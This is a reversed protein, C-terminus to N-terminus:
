DGSRHRQSGSLTRPPRMRCGPQRRWDRYRPRRPLCQIPNAMDLSTQINYRRQATCPWLDQLDLGSRPLQVSQSLFGCHHLRTHLTHSQFLYVFAPRHPLLPSLHPLHQLPSPSSEAAVFFFASENHLELTTNAEPNSAQKEPFRVRCVVMGCRRCDSVMDRACTGFKSSTLRGIAVGDDSFLHWTGDLALEPSGPEKISVPQENECRLSQTVLHKRFQLLNARFQRCTRSLAHLTNLDLSRAIQSVIRHLDNLWNELNCQEACESSRRIAAWHLQSGM